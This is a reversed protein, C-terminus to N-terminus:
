PLYGGAFGRAPDGYCDVLGHAPAWDELFARVMEPTTCGGLVIKPRCERGSGDVSVTALYAVGERAAADPLEPIGPEVTWGNCWQRPTYPSGPCGHKHSVHDMYNEHRLEKRGCDHTVLCYGRVDVVRIGPALEVTDPDSLLDRAREIDELIQEANRGQFRARQEVRWRLLADPDVGPCEGRYAAGLCHDAAATYLVWDNVVYCDRNTYDVCGSPYWSCWFGDDARFLAGFSEGSVRTSHGRQTYRLASTTELLWGVLARPPRQRYYAALLVSIVQGISSATLFEAPPRGYGHDGPRHHDIRQVSAKDPVPVTCEVLYWNEVREADTMYSVSAGRHATAPTVREGKKN